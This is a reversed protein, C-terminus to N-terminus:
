IVARGPIIIKDGNKIANPTDLDNIKLLSDITTAYKKAIKWMTDGHQIVYITISSKKKIIEGEIANINILFEKNKIYNVRAYVNVVAKVGITNAEIACEISELYVKAICQMNIKAGILEVAYSFPIEEMVTYVDREENLTKYLVEVSLIGEVIVKDEVIRKDTVCVKSSNTIIKNPTENGPSLEINGKVITQNMAHGHMINMEYEKKIMEMNMQPSYADEIMDMEEKYMVKTNSKVLAEVDIIRNEGLDDEKIDFEVADVIFDTYNNMFSTAGILELEKTIFVDEELYNLERGEKGKYLVQIKAFVELQIKEEQIKIEKNHLNVNCKLITGVQPKDLPIQMHAKAVLDGAVTGIIKDVMASNKLLQVDEVAEIGKVIEFSYDKYVESKLKIIGEIAIKRENVIMCEMHEIYSEAECLMKNVAGGVEVYNTFPGTYTVSYVECKGDEKALYLVNYEIQGELYVKDQMVEKNTIYPKADLMLVEYIDPNTDPIIYEAKIVADATNEGLLQEYEINEKVLEM